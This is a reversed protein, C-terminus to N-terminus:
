KKPQKVSSPTKNIDENAQQAKCGSCTGCNGCSGSSEKGVGGGSQPPGSSFIPGSIIMDSGEFNHTNIAQDAM